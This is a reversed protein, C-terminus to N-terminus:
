EPTALKVLRNEYMKVVQPRGQTAQEYALLETIQEASKGRMRARLSAVSLEGYGPMPEAGASVGASADQADQVAAAQADQTAPAQTDQVAVAEGGAKAKAPARKADAGQEAKATAEAPVADAEAPVASAPTTGASASDTGGATAPEGVVVPEAVVPEPATVPGSAAAVPEPATAVAEPASAEATAAKSTAASTGTDASTAPAPTEASSASKAPSFIVPDPKPDSGNSSATGPRPAFIVPERRAPKPTGEEADDTNKADERDLLREVAPRSDDGQGNAAAPDDDKSGLSKISNKMRDVLQLAQGAASLTSQIVLLPIEKAKEKDTVTRAINRIVDSLSM